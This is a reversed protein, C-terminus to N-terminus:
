RLQLNVRRGKVVMADETAEAFLVRESEVKGTQLLYEKVREARRSALQRLDNDTIDVLQSAQLRMGDAPAAPAVKPKTVMREAGKEIETKRSKKSAEPVPSSPASTVLNTRVGPSEPSTARAYTRKLYDEFEQPTIVVQEATVQAQESKRLAAWKVARLESELKRRALADRDAMPEVSGEIEVQLGPREYLGKALAALKEVGGPPLDASGPEYDVFSLEEGKGGFIAGLAAFPSTVIKTIVNVIASRVVKGIHFEPDNLSGDVPVDLEIKGSRDKLVAVALRVPLKVADPSEVKEGLTFQDLIIVNRAKLKRESIEYDLNLNLKGRSLRYGVYKGVYPSTPKLDVDHVTIKLETKANPILPNIKGTIDVPGTRGVKATIQLDARKLEDSSIDKVTGNLEDLSVSVQPHISQDNFQLSANSIVVAGVTIKPALSSGMANTNSALAQQLIGGFRQGLGGKGKAPKPPPSSQVEEAPANTGGLKLAALVNIVQNSEVAVRAYPEIVAIERVSVVPPVLKADVGSLQASKWKILDESMLGDVTAFDDLRVDGNFSVDPLENTAMRMQIRGDLGLKSGIIFVNVFPELYPDLPRLEVDNLALQVDASPPSIRAETEVRVAGNTNWRLSITATMNSGPVNSLRRATVAINDVSLRVPRTNVLDELLFACNTFEIQQVTVSALNTSQLVAAFANTAAELLLLLGAPANTATDAPRAMEVVNIKADRDRKLALRGGSAFVSGVEATRAMADASVGKVTLEDLEVLNEPSDHEGVKLSKLSFMANSATAVFNSSSIGFRYTSRANVLGDKIEFRVLDQFLPAYKPISLGELSLEGESRIPDLFFHGSWSFREGSDTTGSFAYPNRNEPDTHFTTLTIELPGIVRRFPTSPTLDTYSASAGSIQLRSVRLFLPKSPKSPVSAQQAAKAILDSFNLTRDKNIQVRAFPQTLRIEKFVWPKGFFSVLQFNAYFEEWSVFPAGDKDKILLGRVTASLTYPNLRVSRISVERGFQKSLQKVAVAKVILPLILFGFVTYGVVLGASWRLLRRARPSLRSSLKTKLSDNKSM